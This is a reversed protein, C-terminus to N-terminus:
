ILSCTFTLVHAHSCTVETTVNRFGPTISCGLDPDVRADDDPYEGKITEAAGWTHHESAAHSPRGFVTNPPMNVTGMGLNRSTGFVNGLDRLSEM